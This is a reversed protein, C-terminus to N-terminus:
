RFNVQGEIVILTYDGTEGGHGAVLIAYDQGEEVTLTKCENRGPGLDSDDINKEDPCSRLFDFFLRTDLEGLTFVSVVGSSTPCFYYEDFEGSWGINGTYVKNSHVRNTPRRRHAPTVEESM